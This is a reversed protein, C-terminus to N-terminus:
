VARVNVIGSMGAIALVLSAIGIGAVLLTLPWGRSLRAFSLALVGALGFPRPANSSQNTERM